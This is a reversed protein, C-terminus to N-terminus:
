LGNITMSRARNDDFSIRNAERLFHCTKHVTGIPLGSIEVLDRYSPGYNKGSAFWTRISRMVLEMNKDKASMKDM